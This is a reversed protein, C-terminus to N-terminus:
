LVTNGTVVAASPDAVIADSTGRGVLNGQILNGSGGTVAVAAIMTAESRRDVITNGSVLCRRCRDVHIGRHWPDLIQCGTISCESSEVLWFCGGEREGGLRSDDMVLGNLTAATCRELRVGGTMNREADNRWAFTNGALALHHVNEATLAIKKGDYITNGTITVRDAHRLEINTEQSGLVNGTIAILRAFTPPDKAGGTVRVNAGGPSVVAQITNSAITIESAIGGACDFWIDASGAVELDHNYEIDNGTIQLNHLDGGVSKIGAHRNFSIHNASLIMQHVNCRDFFVGIGSNDHLHCGTLLFNRNRDVLHIAHRVNHILCERVTAQLTRALEIGDAEPHAGIIEIGAITPFREVDRVEAGITHPSSTGQHTGVFRLAPGPGAMVLRATGGAGTLAVPGVRALDITLPETIRYKGPVLELLGGGQDIWHRLAATDDTSGDGKAGFRRADAM